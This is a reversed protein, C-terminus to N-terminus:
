SSRLCVNTPKLKSGTLSDAPAGGGRVEEVQKEELSVIELLEEQSPLNEEKIVIPPPPPRSPPPASPPSVSPPATAVAAQQQQSHPPNIIVLVPPHHTPHPVAGPHPPFNASNTVVGCDEPQPGQPGM